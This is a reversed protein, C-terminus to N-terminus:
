QHRVRRDEVAAATARARKDTHKRAQGRSQVCYTSKTGVHTVLFHTLIREAVCGVRAKWAEMVLLKPFPARM